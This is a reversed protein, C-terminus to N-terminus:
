CVAVKESPVSEVFPVSIIAAEEATRPKFNWMCQYGRAVIPKDFVVPEKLGWFWRGETFDGLMEHLKTLALTKRPFNTCAWFNVRGVICGRPMIDFPLTDHPLFARDGFEARVRYYLDRGKEDVKQSAHILLPGFHDSRWSRTEWPKFGRVAFWAWPQHLTLAKM